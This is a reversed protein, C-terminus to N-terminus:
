TTHAWGRQAATQWLSDNWAYCALAKPPWDHNIWSQATMPRAPTAQFLVPVSSPCREKQKEKTGLETLRDQGNRPGLMAQVPGLLSLSPGTVAMRGLSITERDRARARNGPGCTPREHGLVGDLAM